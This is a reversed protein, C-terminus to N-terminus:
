AAIRQALHDIESDSLVQAYRRYNITAIVEGQTTLTHYEAEPKRDSYPAYQWINAHAIMMSQRKNGHEDTWKFPEGGEPNLGTFLREDGDGSLCREGWYPSDDTVGRVHVDHVILQILRMFSPSFIPQELLESM